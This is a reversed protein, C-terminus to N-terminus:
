SKPAKSITHLEMVDDGPRIDQIDHDVGGLVVITETTVDTRAYLRFVVKRATVTGDSELFERGGPYRVKAWVNAITERTTQPAGMADRGTANLRVLAVRKDFEGPDM